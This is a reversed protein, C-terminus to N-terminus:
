VEINIVHTPEEIDKNAYVIIKIYNDEKDCEINCVPIQDDKTKLDIWFGPYENDPSYIAMLTGLETKRQLMM